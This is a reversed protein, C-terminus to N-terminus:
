KGGFFALATPNAMLVSDALTDAEDLTLISATYPDLKVARKFLTVSKNALANTATLLAGIYDNSALVCQLPLDQTAPTIGKASITCPLIAPADQPAGYINDNNITTLYLTIPNDATLAAALTVVTDTTDATSVAASHYYGWLRLSKLPHLSLEFRLVDLPEQAAADRFLPYVDKGTKDKLETIWLTEGLGAGAFSIDGGKINKIQTQSILTDVLSSTDTAVGFSTIAYKKYLYSVAFDSLLGANFVPASSKSKLYLEAFADYGHVSSIFTLMDNIVIAKAEQFPYNASAPQIIQMPKPLFLTVVLDADKLTAPMNSQPKEGAIWVTVAAGQHELKQSLAAADSQNSSVIVINM